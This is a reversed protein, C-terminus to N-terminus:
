ERCIICGENLTFVGVKGGLSKVERGKGEFSRSDSNFRSTSSTLPTRNPSKTSVRGTRDPVGINFGRISLFCLLFNFNHNLFLLHTKNSIDKSKRVM